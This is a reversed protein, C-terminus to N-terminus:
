YERIIPLVVTLVEKKSDFKAKGNAEDVSVPLYTFLRHTKSEAKIRNRTVDLDLEKMSSKPFHIKVVLHTCDQSSPSKDSMGLFVDETGVVQKYSIEYRPAPRDDIVNAVSDETPLEDVQWIDQSASKNPVSAPISANSSSLTSKTVVNTPGTSVPPQYSQNRQNNIEDSEKLLSSLANIANYNNIESQFTDFSM